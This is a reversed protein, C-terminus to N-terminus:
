KLPNKMNGFVDSFNQPKEKQQNTEWEAAEEEEKASKENILKIYDQLENIPMWYCEERTFGYHVM